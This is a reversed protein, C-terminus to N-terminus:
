TYQKQRIITILHLKMKCIDITQASYKSEHKGYLEQDSRVTIESDDKNTVLMSWM